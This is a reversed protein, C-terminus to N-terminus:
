HDTGPNRLHDKPIKLMWNAARPSMPIELDMEWGTELTETYTEWQTNELSGWKPVSYLNIALFVLTSGVVWKRLSDGANEWILSLGYTFGFLILVYPVFFYRWPWLNVNDMSPRVLFILTPDEHFISARFMRLSLLMGFITVLIGIWVIWEKKRRYVVIPILTIALTLLM